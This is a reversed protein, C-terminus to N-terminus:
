LVDINVSSDSVKVSQGNRELTIGQSDMTVLNGHADSIEIAEADDDLKIQHGARTRLVKVAPSAQEPMEDLGWFCGSWIPYSVDGQEFEIWVGAGVEPLCVLGVNAGAYPVCPMCWFEADEGIAGVKVRLRGRRQPDDVNTVVGRYKGYFRPELRPTM